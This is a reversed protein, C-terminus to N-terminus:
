DMEQVVIKKRESVFQETGKKDYKARNEQKRDQSQKQVKAVETQKKIFKPIKRSRHIAKVEPMTQYKKVLAQRYEMTREERASLQGIKESARAKWLRINTDDSGSLIYKQDATYNVTWVRQMRKTHYVDRSTGSRHPFIRISKDYSGTVFERGTPSWNICLIAGVHGKYIMTPEDLKRMDFAYANYDESGVVFNMPEMPNWELCNARMRLVTKKLASGSRVDFLGIGRDYSCTAVLSREAPNYRLTNVTDDSGWLDTFSQIPSSREPSWIDVSCDSATAILSESRHHDVSKFSGITSSSYSALPGYTNTPDEQEEEEVPYVSWRKMTGDDSCSYFFKGHNDFCLGTITRTHSGPLAKVLKQSALDWIRIEGDAGGSVFPTLANRSMCTATVSDRHGNELSALFPKAFMRDLKAATVARTYERARQFPHATPDLSRHQIRVDGICERSTAKSSRSITKVKM